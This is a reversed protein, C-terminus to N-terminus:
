GVLTSNMSIVAVGKDNIFAKGFLRTKNWTNMDHVSFHKPLEFSAILQIFKCGNSGSCGSFIVSYRLGKIQGNILPAGRDGRELDASGFERAVQLITRSDDATILGTRGSSDSSVPRSSERDSPRQQSQAPPVLAVLAVAVLAIRFM